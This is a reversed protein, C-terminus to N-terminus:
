FFCNSSHTIFMQYNSNDDEFFGDDLCDNIDDDDYSPMYEHLVDKFHQEAKQNGEPTDYFDHKSYVSDNIYLIVSVIQPGNALSDFYAKIAQTNPYGLSEAVRDRYQSLKLGSGGCTSKFLTQTSKKFQEYTTFM